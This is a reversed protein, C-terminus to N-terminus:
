KRKFIKIITDNTEINDLLVLNLKSILVNVSKNVFFFTHFHTFEYCYNWCPSSIILIGNDKLYSLMDNIDDIPNILHEIVNHSFVIDYDNKKLIIPNIFKDYADINFGQIKLLSHYNLTNGAGYDLIKQNKPFKLINIFLNLFWDDYTGEKFYSYTDIYDQILEDQSLSLVRLDGFIVDCESCQFRVIKDMQFIDNSVYQKYKQIPNITKCLPCSLNLPLINNSFQKSEWRKIQNLKSM